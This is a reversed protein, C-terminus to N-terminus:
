VERSVCITALGVGFRFLADNRGSSAGTGTDVSADLVRAAGGASINTGSEIGDAADALAVTTSRDSSGAGSEGCSGIDRGVSESLALAIDLPELGVEDEDTEALDRGCSKGSGDKVQAFHAM